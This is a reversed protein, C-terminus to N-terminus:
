KYKDLFMCEFLCFGHTKKKFNHRDLLSNECYFASRIVVIFFVSFCVTRHFFVFVLDSM